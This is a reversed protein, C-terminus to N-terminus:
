SEVEWVHDCSQCEVLHTLRVVGSEDEIPVDLFKLDVSGCEPCTVPTM